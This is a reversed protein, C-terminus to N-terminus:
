QGKLHYHYVKGSVIALHIQFDDTSPTENPSLRKWMCIDGRPNAYQMQEYIMPIGGVMFDNSRFYRAGLTELDEQSARSPLSTREEFLSFEAALDGESTRTDTVM